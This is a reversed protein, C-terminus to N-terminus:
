VTDTYMWRIINTSFQYSLLINKRSDDGGNRFFNPFRSLEYSYGSTTRESIYPSEFIPPCIRRREDGRLTPSWRSRLAVVKRGMRMTNRGSSPADGDQFISTHYHRYTTIPPPRDNIHHTEYPFDTVFPYIDRTNFGSSWLTARNQNVNRRDSRLFAPLLLVGM